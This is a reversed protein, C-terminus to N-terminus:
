QPVSLGFGFDELKGTASGVISRVEFKQNNAKEEMKTGKVILFKM